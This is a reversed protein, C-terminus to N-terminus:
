NTLLETRYVVFYAGEESPVPTLDQPYFLSPYLNSFESVIIFLLRVTQTHKCLLVANYTSALFEHMDKDTHFSLSPARLYFTMIVFKENDICSIFLM